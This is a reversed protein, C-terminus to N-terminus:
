EIGFDYGKLKAIWRQYEGAIVHQELLFKLSKQDTRVVFRQGLLYPRWKQVAFVIVMLEQEYVAKFRHTPPFARSFYALPRKNQMLVAGMGVGSADTEVEFLEKFNPLGLVPNLDHSVKVASTSRRGGCEM